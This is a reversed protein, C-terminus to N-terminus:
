GLGLEDDLFEVVPWGFSWIESLRAIGDRLQRMLEPTVASRRVAVPVLQILGVIVCPNAFRVAEWHSEIFALVEEIQAIGAEDRNTALNLLAAISQVVILFIVRMRHGVEHKNVAAVVADLIAFLVFTTEESEARRLAVRSQVAVTGEYVLRLVEEMAVQDDIETVRELVRRLEGDGPPASGFIPPHRPIPTRTPRTRSTRFGSYSKIVLASTTLVDTDDLELDRVKQHAISAYTRWSSIDFRASAILALILLGSILRRSAPADFVRTAADRARFFYEESRSQSGEQRLVISIAANRLLQDLDDVPPGHFLRERDHASCVPALANVYDFYLTLLRVEEELPLLPPLVTPPVPQIQDLPSPPTTAGASVSQQPTMQQQQQQHQQEVLLQRVVGLEQALVSLKDKLENPTMGGLADALLEEQTRRKRPAVM